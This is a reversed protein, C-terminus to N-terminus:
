PTSSGKSGLLADLTLIGEGLEGPAGICVAARGAHVFTAADLASGAGSILLPVSVEVAIRNCATILGDRGRVADPWPVLWLAVAGQAVLARARDVAVAHADHDGAETPVRLQAVTPRTESLVFPGDGFRRVVLDADVDATPDDLGLVAVKAGGERLSAMAVPWRDGAAAVDGGDVVVLSVLDSISGALAQGVVTEDAMLAIRNALEFREIVVPEALVEARIHTKSFAPDRKDLSDLLERGTRTLFNVAFTSLDRQVWPEFSEWWGRSPEAIEQLRQVQPQRAEEYRRLATHVTGESTLAGALAAADEMAM